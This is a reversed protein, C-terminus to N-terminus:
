VARDSPGAKLKKANVYKRTVNETHYEL